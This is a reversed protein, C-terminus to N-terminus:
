DYADDFMAAALMKVLVVIRNGPLLQLAPVRKYTRPL